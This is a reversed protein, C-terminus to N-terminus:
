TYHLTLNNVTSYSWLVHATCVIAGYSVAVQKCFSVLPSHEQEYRFDVAKLFTQVLALFRM